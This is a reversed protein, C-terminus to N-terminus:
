NDMIAKYMKELKDVEKPTSFNEKINTISRESFRDYIEKKALYNFKEVALEINGYQVVFGTEGEVISEPIGGSDSVIAPIGCAQAELVSTALSESASMQLIFDMKNYEENLHEPRVKGKYTVVEHLNLRDIWYFLEGIDPGGGFVHYKVPFNNKVLAQIVRLNLEINKEWCFRFVSCVNIEKGFPRSPGPKFVVVNVGPSIVFINELPVNWKNHLFNKQHESMVQCFAGFKSIKALYNERWDKDIWPKIYTDGGRFAIVLKVNQNSSLINSIGKFLFSQQVHIINYNHNLMVQELHNFSKYSSNVLMNKRRDFRRYYFKITENLISNSSKYYKLSPFGYRLYKKNTDDLSLIDLNIGERKSIYYAQDELYPQYFEPFREYFFLVNM